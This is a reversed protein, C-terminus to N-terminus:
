EYKKHAAELQNQESALINTIVYVYDIKSYDVALSVEPNGNKGNLKSIKGVPIGKPFYSSYGSTIIDEGAKPVTTNTVDFLVGKSPDLNDGWKFSCVEKSKTLVCSIITNKHLVSQVLALHETVDIVIGVVGASCIVGMDKTIGDKSGRNITLYNNRSLVSNNIVKAGIYSYQQKYVSDTIANKEPTTNDYSTKLKNRLRSNEILLSDNVDALSLYSEVSYVRQYITGIVKNTSSLYTTKQFSNNNVLIVLSWIEFVAFLFFANYKLVFNWLNRM